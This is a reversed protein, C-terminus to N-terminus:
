GVFDEGVTPKLIANIEYNIKYYHPTQWKIKNASPRTPLLKGVAPRTTQKELHNVEEELRKKTIGNM